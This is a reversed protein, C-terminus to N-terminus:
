ATLSPKRTIFILKFKVVLYNNEDSGIVDNKEEQFKAYGRYGGRSIKITIRSINYIEKSTFGTTNLIYSTASRLESKSKIVILRTVVSM